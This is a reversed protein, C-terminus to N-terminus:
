YTSFSTIASGNDVLSFNVTLPTGQVGSQNTGSYPTATITYNGTDLPSGTYDGANDGFLSYPGDNNELQSDNTPSLELFVSGVNQPQTVAVISLNENGPLALDITAGENLQQIVTDADADILLFSTIASGNDVLSFNVTLPTGQVGSQNTGSYPTATITYNGTDLPSGTYDEQM